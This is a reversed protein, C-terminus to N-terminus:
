TVRGASIVRIQVNSLSARAEGMSIQISYCVPVAAVLVQNILLM